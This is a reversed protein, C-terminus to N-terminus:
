QGIRAAADRAWRALTRIRELDERSVVVEGAAKSVGGAQTPEAALAEDVLSVVCDLHRYARLRWRWRPDDPEQGGADPECAVADADHQAGPAAIAPVGSPASPSVDPAQPGAIAPLALWLSVGMVSPFRVM